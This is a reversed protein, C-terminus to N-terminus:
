KKRLATAKERFHDAELLLAGAKAPDRELSAQLRLLLNKYALAEIYDSKIEIAKNTAAIGHLVYQMKAQDSLRSDRYAADWYYTAM